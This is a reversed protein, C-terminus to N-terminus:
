LGGSGTYGIFPGLCGCRTKLASDRDAVRLAGDWRGPRTAYDAVVGGHGDGGSTPDEGMVAFRMEIM